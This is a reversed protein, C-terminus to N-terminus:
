IKWILFKSAFNLCTGVMQSSSSLQEFGCITTDVYEPAMTSIAFLQLSIKNWGPGLHELVPQLTIANVSLKQNSDGTHQSTKGADGDPSIFEAADVEKCFEVFRADLTSADGIASTAGSDGNDSGTLSSSNSDIVDSDCGAIM